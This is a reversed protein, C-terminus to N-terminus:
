SSRPIPVVCNGARNALAAGRRWQRLEHEDIGNTLFCFSVGTEPDAWAIQGAAGNHGFARASVMRGMGRLHSRDDDGKVVLGRTRNAPTGMFDPYSNRVTSTADALVEPKWMGLPDHLLAQYFLALDAATSVGGGGPVGVAAVDPHNFGLLAETTVETLPLERIGLVAELEDATAPAGTRVLRNIDDQQDAPVGLQLGPLGLPEIVQTRVFDRFDSGSAREILEALVWHASTPHYEFRTGPEWNCRWQAFRGLRRDRDDWDAPAFPARPFGSTHLMVQEVTIDQKGNAAFEPVLDAVRGAVDITGEGILRWMAAAVVPKTASFIVYRSEPAAAGLSLWVALKGDRAFALQCSPIRGEDIERQARAVLDALAAEDIGLDAPPASVRRAFPADVM